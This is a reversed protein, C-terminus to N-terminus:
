LEEEGVEEEGVEEEGVEEEGEEEEGEEEGGFNPEPLENPIAPMANGADVPDPNMPNRYDDDYDCGFTEWIIGGVIYIREEEGEGIGNEADVIAQCADMDFIFGKETPTVFSDEVGDESYIVDKLTAYWYWRQGDVTDIPAGNEDTLWFRMMSPTYGTRVTLEGTGAYDEGFVYGHSIQSTHMNIAKQDM